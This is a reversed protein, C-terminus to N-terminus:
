LNIGLEGFPALPVGPYYGLEHLEDVLLLRLSEKLKFKVYLSRLIGEVRSETLGMEESIFMNSPIGKTAPDIKTTLINLAMTESPGLSPFKHTKRKRLKDMIDSPFVIEGRAITNLANKLTRLNKRKDIYGLAGFRIAALIHWDEATGSFVLFKIGAQKLLPMVELGDLKQYLTLDVVALVFSKEQLASLVEEKTGVYTAAYEKALESRMGGVLSAHDEIVLLPIRDTRPSLAQGDVTTRMDHTSQAPPQSTVMFAPIASRNTAHVTTQM